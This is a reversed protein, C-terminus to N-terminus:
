RGVSTKIRGWSLDKVATGAAAPFEYLLDDSAADLRLVIAGSAQQYEERYRARLPSLDFLYDQTVWRECSDNNADHALSVELQVPDSELFAGSADLTFLHDECGGAYSVTVALTDDALAVADLEYDDDDLGSAADPETVVLGWLRTEESGIDESSVAIPDDQSAAPGFSGLVILSLALPCATRSTM